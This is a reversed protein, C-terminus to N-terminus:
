DELLEAETAGEALRLRILEVIIRTERIMPARMM